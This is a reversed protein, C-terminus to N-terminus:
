GATATADGAADVATAADAADVAEADSSVEVSVDKKASDEKPSCASFAIAVALIVGFVFRM